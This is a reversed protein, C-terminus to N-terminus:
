YNSVQSMLSITIAHGTGNKLFTCETPTLARLRKNGHMFGSVFYRNVLHLYDLVQGPLLAQMNCRYM